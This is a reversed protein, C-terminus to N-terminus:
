SAVAVEETQSAQKVGKYKPRIHQGFHKGVSPATMMTQFEDATVGDYDYTVGGNHFKVTLRNTAPDHHVHSILSSTVEQM